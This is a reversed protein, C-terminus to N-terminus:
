PSPVEMKMTREAQADFKARDADTTLLARLDADRTRRIAIRGAADNPARNFLALDDGLAARIIAHAKVDADGNMTLSTLKFLNVYMNEAVSETNVSVGHRGEAARTDFQVRDNQNTLLQRLAADRDDQIKMLKPWTALIPGASVARQATLAKEIIPLAAAKQAPTLTIAAFMNALIRESMVDVPTNPDARRASLSGDSPFLLSGGALRYKKTYYLVAGYQAASGFHTVSAPANIIQTQAIDDDAPYLKAAATDLKM